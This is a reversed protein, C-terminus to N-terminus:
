RRSGKDVRPTKEAFLVEVADALLESAALEQERGRSPGRRPLTLSLTDWPHFKSLLRM